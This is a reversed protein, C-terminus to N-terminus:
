VLRRWGKVETQDTVALVFAHENSALFGRMVIYETRSILSVPILQDGMEDRCNANAM